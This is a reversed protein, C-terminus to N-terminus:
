KKEVSQPRALIKFQSFLKYMVNLEHETLGTRGFVRRLAGIFIETCDNKHRFGAMDLIELVNRYFMDMEKNGVLRPLPTLPTTDSAMFLEYCTVMVAQALNLSPYSCATPINVLCACLNVEENALGHNERGFLIAAKNERCLPVLRTGLERVSFSEQHNRLKKQSTAVLLTCDAVAEPLTPFIKVSDLIKESAHGLWQAELSLHNVQPNVLRLDRFGMNTMARAVSGINGASLPEVLVIAINERNLRETVNQDEM